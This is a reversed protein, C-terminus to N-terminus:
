FIHLPAPYVDLPQYRLRNNHPLPGEEEANIQFPKVFDEFMVPSLRAVKEKVELGTIRSKELLESSILDLIHRNAMLGKMALEETEEIYLGTIRSKELLENSILDLIHRNAMLGKMALEETEEIYRTLERTFLELVEVTMDAPVVHPDYRYKILEGDTNNARNALGVRNTLTAFGLISNRPSIVMERAIRRVDDASFEEIAQKLTRFNRTSKSMKESNLMIHDNCRFGRPWHKKRFTINKMFSRLFRMGDCKSCWGLRKLVQLGLCLNLESDTVLVDDTLWNESLLYLGVGSIRIHGM